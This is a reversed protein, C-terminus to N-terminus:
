SHKTARDLCTGRTMQTAVSGNRSQRMDKDQVDWGLTTADADNEHSQVVNMYYRTVYLQIAAPRGLDGRNKEIHLLVSRVTRNKRSCVDELLSWWEPEMSIATVKNGLDLRRSKYVVNSM